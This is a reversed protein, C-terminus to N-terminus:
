GPSAAGGSADAARAGTFSEGPAAASGAGLCPAGTKPGAAFRCTTCGWSAGTWGRTTQIWRISAFVTIWEIETTCSRLAACWDARVARGAPWAAGVKGGGEAGEDGAAVAGAVAPGGPDPLKMGTARAEPSVPAKKSM